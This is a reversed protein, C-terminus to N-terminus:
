VVLNIKCKFRSHLIYLKLQWRQFNPINENIIEHELRAKFKPYLYPHLRIVDVSRNLWVELDQKMSLVKVILITNYLGSYIEPSLGLFTLIKSQLPNLLTVSISRLGSNRVFVASASQWFGVAGLNSGPTRETVDFSLTNNSNRGQM